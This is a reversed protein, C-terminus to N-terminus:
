KLYMLKATSRAGDAGRLRAFYLGSSLSQPHWNRIHVGANIRGTFVTGVLRGTLDFIELAIEQERRVVFEITVVSNFPNPYANGIFSNPAKVPVRPEPVRAFFSTDEEWPQYRIRWEVTDGQGSPNGVSDYPGSEHNWYNHRAYSTVNLNGQFAAFGLNGAFVNYELEGDGTGVTLVQGSPPWSISQNSCDLVYNRSVQRLGRNDGHISCFSTHGGRIDQVLNRNIRTEHNNATDLAFLGHMQARFYPTFREFTNGIAQFETLSDFASQDYLDQTLVNDHFHCSDIRLYNIPRGADTVMVEIHNDYAHCGVFEVSDPPKSGYIFTGGWEYRYSGIDRFTTNRVTLKGAQVWFLVPADFVGTYATDNQVICSDLLASGERVRLVSGIRLQGCHTFVSNSIQIRGQRVAIAAGYGAFCSDFRCNEIDANQQFVRIAGGEDNSHTGSNSFRIGVLRFYPESGDYPNSGLSRLSDDGNNVGSWVCQLIDTSDGSLLFESCLTLARSPVLVTEHYRGSDLLVTDRLNAINIAAQITPADVPVRIITASSHSSILLLLAILVRM